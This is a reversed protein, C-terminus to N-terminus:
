ATVLSLTRSLFPKKPAVAETGELALFAAKEIESSTNRFKFSLKPLFTKINSRNKSLSPGPSEKSGPFIPSPCPSFIVRRPPPTLPMNIRVYDERAEEQTIAPIDLILNQRTGHQGSPLEETIESSAPGKQIPIDARNETTGDGQNNNNNNDDKSSDAAETAM